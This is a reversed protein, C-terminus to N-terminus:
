ARLLFFYATSAVVCLIILLTAYGMRTMRRYSSEDSFAQPTWSVFNQNELMEQFIGAVFAQDRSDLGTGTLYVGAVMPPAEPELMLGRQLIRALRKRAQRLRAFFQFLRLNKRLMGQVQGPTELTASDLRFMALVASSVQDQCLHNVGKEFMAPIEEPELDPVLAFRQGFTQQRQNEPLSGLFERFGPVQELDCLLVAMPCEVQLVDRAAELDLRCLTAVQSAEVDGQTGALPVLILIGNLPCYPRREGAILRCLHQLRAQLNEMVAKNKLLPPSLPSAEPLPQKPQEQSVLSGIRQREEESLQDPGRGEEQAKALISQVNVTPAPSTARTRVRNAEKEAHDAFLNAQHGLLSSETCTVFVGDRNAYVHLPAGSRHPSAQVALKLHAAQFLSEEGSAPRGLVLFVPVRSIDISAQNLAQMAEEWATDIEPFSVPIREPGLLKYLWYGLWGLVYLLFFLLPLWVKHLLPWPSRLAKELDFAYNLYWLGLLILALFLFHLVWRLVGFFGRWKARSFLPVIIEGLSTLGTWLWTFIVM